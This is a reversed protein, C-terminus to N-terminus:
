KSWFESNHDQALIWKTWQSTEWIMTRWEDPSRAFAAPHPTVYFPIHGWWGLKGHVAKFNQVEQGFLWSGAQKGLAVIMKPQVLNIQRILFHQCAQVEAPQPNRNGPPRCKLLNAVFVQDRPITYCKGLYYEDFHQGAVGAFPVGQKDEDAGPAEGIFMLEARLPGSCPVVKTRTKSLECNHCIETEEIIRKLTTEKSFFKYLAPDKIWDTYEAPTDLGQMVNLAHLHGVWFPEFLSPVGAELRQKRYYGAFRDWQAKFEENTPM